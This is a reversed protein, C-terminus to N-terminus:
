CIIGECDLETIDIRAGGLLSSISPSTRGCDGHVFEKVYTGASTSMRLCFWHDNIRCSSLTLKYYILIQYFLFARGFSVDM